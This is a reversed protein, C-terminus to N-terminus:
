IARGGGLTAHEADFRRNQFVTLPVGAHEAADVVELAADASVALPKDVVM